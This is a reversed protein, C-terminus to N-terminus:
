RNAVLPEGPLVEAALESPELASKKSRVMPVM